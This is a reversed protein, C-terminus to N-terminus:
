NEIRIHYYNYSLIAFVVSQIIIVITEYYYVQVFRLYNISSLLAILLHGNTLNALLRIGLTIPRVILSLTEISSITRSLRKNLKQISSEEDLVEGERTKRNFLFGFSISFTITFVIVICTIFTPFWPMIGFIALILVTFLIISTIFLLHTKDIGLRNVLVRATIKVRNNNTIFVMIYLLSLLVFM